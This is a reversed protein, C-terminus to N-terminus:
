VEIETYAELPLREETLADFQPVIRQFHPTAKHADLSAQDAWRELFLHLRQEGSSRCLVYGLCGPEKRSQRVLEAALAEFADVCESRIIRRSILTLM